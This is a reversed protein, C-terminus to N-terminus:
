RDDKSDSDSRDLRDATEEREPQVVVNPPSPEGTDAEIAEELEGHEVGERTEEPTRHRVVRTPKLDPEGQERMRERLVESLAEAAILGHEAAHEAMIFTDAALVLSSGVDLVRRALAEIAWRREPSRSVNRIYVALVRGPHEEVVRTYIEPDRQGSDGVLVFPLDDYLALMERILNLKHNKVRNPLPHLLTMGWERLFLIPGVPIDHLRFFRDLMDYIIWPAKSVYLMPNLERGSVGRHLARYLAAVGPFAIRQDATQLFLRQLMVAKNTVGTDMVTDDIDSIVVFRAAEPPVFFEGQTAARVPRLLRIDVKHWLWDAPPPQPLRLRARFYGHRDTTVRQRVEGLEVELVADGIGRRLLLRGFDQMDRQPTQEQRKRASGPEQFVRGMLFAEERSGYGRYPQVIISYQGRPRTMMQAAKGLVTALTGFM